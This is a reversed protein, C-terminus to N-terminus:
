KKLSEKYKLLLDEIDPDIINITGKMTDHFQCNYFLPNPANEPVKFMLTGDQLGNNSVGDEYANDMGTSDVTKIWFPHGATRVEFMYTEGRILRLTPNEGEFGGTFIYQGDRVTILSLNYNETSMFLCV